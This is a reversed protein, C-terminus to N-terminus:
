VTSYEKDEQLQKFAALKEYCTQQISELWIRYGECQEGYAKTDGTVFGWWYQEKCAKKMSRPLDRRQKIYTILTEAERMQQQLAQFLQMGVKEVHKLAQIEAKILDGITEPEFKDLDEPFPPTEAEM